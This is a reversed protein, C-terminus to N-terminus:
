TLEHDTRRTPKTYNAKCASLNEEIWDAIQPFTPGSDNFSAITEQDRGSLEIGARFELPLYAYRIGGHGVDIGYCPSLRKDDLLWWGDAEIDWLVGLPCMSGDAKHLKRQCQKREPDRLEKVWRKKVAQNM